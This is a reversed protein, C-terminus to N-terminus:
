DVYLTLTKIFTRGGASATLEFQWFGSYKAPLTLAFQGPAVANPTLTAAEDGHSLHFCRVAVAAGAVPKDEATTLKLLMQRRGLVDTQGTPQLDVNWGLRDAEQLQQKHSDWAQEKAYYDPIVAFEGPRRSIVAVAVLMGVVHAALLAVIIAPWRWAFRKPSDRPPIISDNLRM